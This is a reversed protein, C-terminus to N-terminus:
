YHKHIGEGNGLLDHNGVVTVHPAELESLIKNKWEFEEELGFQTLDGGHIVFDANTNDNINNVIGRTEDLARQTDTIFPILLTDQNKAAFLLKEVNRGNIDKTKVRNEYPHYEPECGLLIFFCFLIFLCEKM